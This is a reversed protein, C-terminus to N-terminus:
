GATRSRTQASCIRHEVLQSYYQRLIQSSRPLSAIASAFHALLCPPTRHVQVQHTMTVIRAPPIMSTRQTSTPQHPSVTFCHKRPRRLSTPDIVGINGRGRISAVELDADYQLALELAEELHEVRHLHAFPIPGGPFINALDRKALEFVPTLGLQRPSSVRLM